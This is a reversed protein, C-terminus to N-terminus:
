GSSSRSLTKWVRVTRREFLKGDGGGHAVVFTQALKPQATMVDAAQLEVASVLSIGKHLVLVIRGVLHQAICVAIRDHQGGRVLGRRGARGAM